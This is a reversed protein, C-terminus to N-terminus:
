GWNPKTNAELIDDMDEALPNEVEVTNGVIKDAEEKGFVQVLANYRARENERAETDLSIMNIAM